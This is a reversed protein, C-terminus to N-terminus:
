AKVKKQIKIILNTLAVLQKRLAENQAQLAAIQESVQVSLAAVADAADQAAATAADAAEAAANAADTAANAADTAEAAADAAAQAVGDSLVTASATVVAATGGAIVADLAAGQTAMISIPGPVLPAYATFTAKGAVVTVAASATWTAGQLAVNSTIGASSFLNRSGDAVGAGNSDLATVTVTMKEGAAYESKDFSLAVTKATIKSVTVTLTTTVTASSTANALTIVSTGPAVGTVTVVGSTDTATVTAVTTTASTANVTGLTAANGLSDKGTVTLTGTEGVGINTKSAVVSYSALAGFFTVSYTKVVVGNVSVTVTGTGSRGDAFVYFDSGQATEAAYQGLPTGAAVGVSGVGTISVTNAVPTSLNVDNADEQDVVIKLVEATVAATASRTSATALAAADTTADPTTGGADTADTAAYVTSNAASYVNTVAASTVTITFTQLATDTAVGSAFARTVVTVTITGATPTAVKFAADTTDELNTNSYSIETAATNLTAVAPSTGAAQTLASVTGGAVKVIVAAASDSGATFEVYNNAGAIQSVAVTAAYSDTPAYSAATVGFPLSTGATASASVASFSGLTLAAVAVLAIRKFTTKTSM